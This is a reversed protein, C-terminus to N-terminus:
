SKRNDYYKEKLKALQAMVKLDTDAAKIHFTIYGAIEEAEERSLSVAIGRIYLTFNTAGLNASVQISMQLDGAM